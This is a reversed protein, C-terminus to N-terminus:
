GRQIAAMPCLNTGRHLKESSISANHQQGKPSERRRQMHVMDQFVMQHNVMATFRAGM